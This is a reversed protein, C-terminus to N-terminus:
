TLFSVFCAEVVPMYFPSRLATGLQDLFDQKKNLFILTQERPMIQAAPIIILQVHASHDPQSPLVAHAEFALDLSLPKIM